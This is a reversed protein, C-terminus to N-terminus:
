ISRKLYEISKNRLQELNNCIKEKDYFPNIEEFVKGCPVICNDIGLCNLLSSQRDDDSNLDKIVSYLPIGFNIAFATGHFSSTVVHSASEFLQIFKEVSVNGCFSYKVGFEQPIHTFSIVKLGTKFQIKKLLNYIYPRSEFSHTILYFLIYNDGKYLNEQNSGFKSWENKNLLLTPDLTIEAEKGLLENIILNGKKDRISIANYRDLYYKFVKKYNDDMNSRAFSASFSIKNANKPAFALLFANDGQTHKVNWTQDSGTVYVDYIPPNDILEQPHKYKNNSLKYYKNIARNFDKKKKQINTIGINPIIDHIFSKLTKNKPLGNQFHWKNPFVYDILECDYGLKNIVQQTAYSQLFSGYNLVRHMTIVGVKKKKMM